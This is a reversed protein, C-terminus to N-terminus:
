FLAAHFKISCVSISEINRQRILTNNVEIYQIGTMSQALYVPKLLVDKCDVSFFAIYINM